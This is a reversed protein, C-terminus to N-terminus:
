IGLVKKTTALKKKRDALGNTGGNIKKSIALVNDKDALPNCKKWSGFVWASGMFGYQPELLLKPNSVLDVGLAAGCQKYADRGTVQIPGRGKYRVGDGKQTNGLDKRGEYAKGSAFEEM